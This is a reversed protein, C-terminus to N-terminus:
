GKALRLYDAESRTALVMELDDCPTIAEINIVHRSPSSLQPDINRPVGLDILLQAKLSETADCARLLHDQSRTAAVVCPFRCWLKTLEAWAIATGGIESAFTQSRQDTRNVITLDIAQEKLTLAIQRNIMSTGIFLVSPDDAEKLHTAVLASVHDCLGPSSSSGMKERLVKGTHLARQFLLHVEKPLEKHVCAETYATKVQGQIETEGVFLSDLGSVVRGLHRVCELGFFTYL